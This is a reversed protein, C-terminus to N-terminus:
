VVALTGTAADRVLARHCLSEDSEFCLLVVGTERALRDVESLAAAASDTALVECEFRRHAERGAATGPAAFGPRNDKPNGLEPRHIYAIGSRRLSEELRRKSFGPKRSIPNLRVDIVTTVGQTRAFAVLEEVSRGQYGWGHISPVTETM